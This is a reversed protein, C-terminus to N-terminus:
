LMLHRTFFPNKALQLSDKEKEAKRSGKGETLCGPRVKKERLILYRGELIKKRSSGGKPGLGLRGGGREEGTLLVPKQSAHPTQCVRPSGDGKRKRVNQGEGGRKREVESVRKDQKPPITKKPSSQSHRGKRSRGAQAPSGGGRRKEQCFFGRVKGGSFFKGDRDRDGIKGNGGMFAVGCIKLGGGQLTSVKQYYDPAV